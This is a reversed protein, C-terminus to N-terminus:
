EGGYERIAAIAAKNIWDHSKFNCPSGSPTADHFEHM